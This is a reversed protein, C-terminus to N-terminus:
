LTQWRCSCTCTNANAIFSLQCELRSITVFWLKSVREFNGQRQAVKISATSDHVSVCHLEGNQWIATLQEDEARKARLLEAAAALRVRREREEPEGARDAADHVRLRAARARRAESSHSATRRGLRLFQGPSLTRPHVMCLLICGHQISM